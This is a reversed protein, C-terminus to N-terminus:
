GRAAGGRHRRAAVIAVCHEKLEPDAKGGLERLLPEPDSLAVVGLGSAAAWQLVRPGKKEVLKGLLGGGGAGGKIWTGFLGVATRESLRALAEGFAAAEANSMGQPARAQLQKALLDFARPEKRSVLLGITGIRVEEGRSQLLGQLLKSVEEGAPARALLGVVQLQADPEGTGALERAIELARGPQAVLLIEMLEKGVAPPVERIKAVLDVGSERARVAVVSRAIRKLREDDGGLVALLHEDHEGPVQALLQGLEPPAETATAPVAELLLELTEATGLPEFVRAFTDAGEPEGERLLAVLRQLPVLRRDALLYDRVECFIPVAAESPLPDDPASALALVEACLRVARDPLTDSSEEAQLAQLYKAPVERFAFGAPAPSPPLPLDFDFPAGPALVADDFDLGDGGDGAPPQAPGEPAEPDEEEPVFGEVAEVQIGRFGAKRLLTVVDDEQQRVGTFRVSLVELLRLLEDWETSKAFTLRRVGDRFLRFALSRERDEEEYVVDGGLALAFPRVELVVPGHAALAARMKEQYDGLFRRIAQNKPDYLAFARAARSFARLAENVARGAPSGGVSKEDGLEPGPEGAAM